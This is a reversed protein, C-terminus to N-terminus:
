EQSKPKRRSLARPQDEAIQPSRESTPPQVVKAQEAWEEAAHQVAKRMRERFVEPTLEMIVQGMNPSNTVERYLLRVARRIVEAVPLGSRRAIDQLAAAEEAEFRVPIASGKSM